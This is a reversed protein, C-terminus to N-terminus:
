GAVWESGGAGSALGHYGWKVEPSLINRLRWVTLWALEGVLDALYEAASRDFLVTGGAAVEEDGRWLVFRVPVRPLPWVEFSLDGGELREGFFPIGVRQLATMDEGAYDL